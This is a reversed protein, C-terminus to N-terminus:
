DLLNFLPAVAGFMGPFRFVAADQQRIRELAEDSLLSRQHDLAASEDVEGGYSGASRAEAQIVAIDANGALQAAMTSFFRELLARHEGSETRKALADFDAHCKVLREKWYEPVEGDLVFPGANGLLPTRDETQFAVLVRHGPQPLARLRVVTKPEIDVLEGSGLKFKELGRESIVDLYAESSFYVALHERPLGEVGCRGFPMSYAWESGTIELQAEAQGGSLLVLARYLAEGAEADTDLPELTNGEGLRVRYPAGYGFLRVRAATRADRRVNNEAM